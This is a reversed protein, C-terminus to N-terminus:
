SAWEDLLTQSAADRVSATRGDRQGDTASIPPPLRRPARKTHPVPPAQFPEFTVATLPEGRQSVIGQLDPLRTLDQTPLELPGSLRSATDPTSRFVIKTDTASALDAFEPPLQGLAQTSLVLSVGFKRGEAIVTSLGKAPFRHCEDVYCTFTTGPKPSAFCAALITDLLLHGVFAAEGPALGNLNAIIPRGQNTLRRLDVGKGAPAIIRRATGSVLPHAKSVTWNLVDRGYDTKLLNGLTSRALRSVLPHAIQRELWSPDGAWTVGDILEAGHAAVLECFAHWTMFFRPGTWEPNPLSSSIADGLRRAQAQVREYRSHRSDIRDLIRIRQTAADRVDLLLPKTGLHSCWGALLDTLLGHPDICLFPRGHRLDDLALTHLATSKGSGWAGTVLVHRTRRSLPLHVMNGKPDHGLVTSEETPTAPAPLARRSPLLTPITPLPTQGPIPWGIPSETLTIVDRLERGRLGGRLPVGLALAQQGAELDREIEFGGLVLRNAAVIVRGQQRLVDSESTFAAAISRLFTEPLEASSCILLECILLPSAFSARLDLLTSEARGTDFDVDARNLNRDRLNRVRQLASSLQIRDSPSLETALVTARVRVPHDTRACLRAATAWPEITPAFRSVIEILDDEDGVRWLRQRLVAAHADRSWGPNQPENAQASSVVASPHISEAALPGREFLEDVRAALARANPLTSGTEGLLGVALRASLSNAQPSWEIESIMLSRGPSWATEVVCDFGINIGQLVSDNVRAPDAATLHWALWTVEQVLPDIASGSPASFPGTWHTRSEATL